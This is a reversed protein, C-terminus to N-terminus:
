SVYPLFVAYAVRSSNHKGRIGALGQKDGGGGDARVEEVNRLRVSRSKSDKSMWTLRTDGDMLHFYHVKPKGQRGHKWLNGGQACSAPNPPVAAGLYIMVSM